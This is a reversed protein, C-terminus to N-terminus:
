STSRLRALTSTPLEFRRERELNGPFAQHSERLKQAHQNRAGRRSRRWGRRSRYKSPIERAQNQEVRVPHQLAGPSMRRVGTAEPYETHVFCYPRCKQLGKTQQRTPRSHNSCEVLPNLTRQEVLQALLGHPACQVCGACPTLEMKLGGLCMKKIKLIFEM